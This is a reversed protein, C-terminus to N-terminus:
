RPVASVQDRGQGTERVGEATKGQGSVEGGRRERRLPLATGGAGMGVRSADEFSMRSSDEGKWRRDTETGVESGEEARRMMLTSPTSTLSAASALSSLIFNSHASFSKNPAPFLLSPPDHLTRSHTSRAKKRKKEKREKGREGGEWSSVEERGENYCFGRVRSMSLVCVWVKRTRFGKVRDEREVWVEVRSTLTADAVEVV